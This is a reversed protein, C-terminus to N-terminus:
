PFALTGVQENTQNAMFVAFGFHLGRVSSSNLLNAFAIPSAKKCPSKCEVGSGKSSKSRFIEGIVGPVFCM